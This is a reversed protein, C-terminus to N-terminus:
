VLDFVTSQLWSSTLTGTTANARKLWWWPPIHLCTQSKLCYDSNYFNLVADKVVIHTRHLLSLISISNVSIILLCTASDVLHKMMAFWWTKFNHSTKYFTDLNQYYVRSSYLWFCQRSNLFIPLQTGFQWQLYIINASKFKTTCCPIVMLICTYQRIKFKTTAFTSWWVVLDLEWSFKEAINNYYPILNDIYYYM